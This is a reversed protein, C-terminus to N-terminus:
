AERTDCVLLEVGGSAFNGLDNGAAIGEPSALAAQIDAMSDFHLEAILHISSAGQPTAIPGQSVVYRRLGKIKKAIPVHKSFYYEDFHATDHPTKYLAILKAAM